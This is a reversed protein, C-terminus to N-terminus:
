LSEKDPREIVVQLVKCDLVNAAYRRYIDSVKCKFKCALTKTLSTELLWKLYTMRNKNGVNVAMCYFNYLGQLVGQYRQIITYDTEPTLEAKPAIKGKRSYRDRYKAVVKRPMLLAINGNTTRRGDNSVLTGC